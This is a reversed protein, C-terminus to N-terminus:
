FGAPGEVVWLSGETGSLLCELNPGQLRERDGKEQSVLAESDLIAKNWYFKIQLFLGNSQLDQTYKIGRNIVFQPLLAFM